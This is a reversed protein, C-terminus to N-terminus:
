QCYYRPELCDKDENGGEAQKSDREKTRKVIEERGIREGSEAQRRQEARSIGSLQVLKHRHTGCLSVWKCLPASM